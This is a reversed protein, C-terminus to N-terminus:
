GNAMRRVGDRFGRFSPSQNVEVDLLPCIEKAWIRKQELIRVSRKGHQGLAKLGGPYIADALKEWTGCRSDQTYADLEQQRANPYAQKLAVQDGFFWAELEEIPIRFLTRPQKQCYDLLRLLDSKFLVCDPRDDLDVLVVVVLDDRGENGYARLKSALNHLLTPDNKNPKLGPDDPIRGVGRHKHIKWTHPSGYVCLVKPMLISIATLDAQGEVLIEFHM